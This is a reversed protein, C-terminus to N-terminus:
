EIMKGESSMMDLTRYRIGNTILRQAMMAAKLGYIGAIEANWLKLGM